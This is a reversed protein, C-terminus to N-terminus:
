TNSGEANAANEGKKSGFRSESTRALLRKLRLRRALVGGLRYLQKDIYNIEETKLAIVHKLNAKQEELQQIKKNLVMIPKNCLAM